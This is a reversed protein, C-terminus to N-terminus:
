LSICSALSRCHSAMKASNYFFPPIVVASHSSALIDEPINVLQQYMTEVTSVSFRLFSNAM